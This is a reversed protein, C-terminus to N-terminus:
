DKTTDSETGDDPEEESRTVEEPVSEPPTDGFEKALQERLREAAKGGPPVEPPPQQGTNVYRSHTPAV